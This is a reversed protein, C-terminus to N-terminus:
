PSGKSCTSTSQMPGSGLLLDPFWNKSVMIHMLVRNGLAKGRRIIVAVATVFVRVLNKVVKPRGFTTCVSWPVLKM